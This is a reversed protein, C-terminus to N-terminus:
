GGSSSMLVIADNELFQFRVRNWPIDGSTDWAFIRQSHFRSFGARRLNQLDSEASTCAVILRCRSQQMAIVKAATYLHNRFSENGRLDAITTTDGHQTLVVSGVNTRQNLLRYGRVRALPCRALYELVKPSYRFAPADENDDISNSAGQLDEFWQWHNSLSRHGRIRLAQNRVTRLVGRPTKWSRSWESAFGECPYSATWSDAVHRYAARELRKQTVALAGISVVYDMRQMLQARLASAAGPDSSRRAWDILNGGHYRRGAWGIVSPWIGAHAVINGERELIWSRALESDARPEWYKWRLVEPSLQESEEPISFIGSLFTRLRLYDEPTTSKLVLSM